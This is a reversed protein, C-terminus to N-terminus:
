AKQASLLMYGFFGQDFCYRLTDAGVTFKRLVKKGERTGLLTQEVERARALWRNPSLKVRESLDVLEVSQFGAEHARMAFEGPTRMHMGPGWANKMSLLLPGNGLSFALHGWFRRKAVPETIILRGGKKLVRFSERLMAQVDPVYLATEMVFVVDCSGDPLNTDVADAVEFKLGADNNRVFERALEIGRASTSIGTISCGRRDRLYVAAHGSGCGVDLVHDGHGIGAIGAALDIMAETARELTEDGSEFLGFHMHDGMVLHTLDTTEDYHQAVTDTPAVPRTIAMEKTM